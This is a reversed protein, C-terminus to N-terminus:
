VSEQKIKIDPKYLRGQCTNRSSLEKEIHNLVERKNKSWQPAILTNKPGDGTLRHIVLNPPLLELCDVVIQAYEDISLTKFAGNIYMQALPTGEIVHLLHLKIGQLKKNSLYKISELMQAKSEGPLGLIMHCVIDIEIENLDKVAKEFVSLPYGRCIKSATEEHTTQLGLEVWVYTERSLQNLLNIVEPSLCDPRTAIAIGVVGPVSIAEFFKERLENIPAYTNTYAQFYAIYKNIGHKESLEIIGKHSNYLQEKISLAPNGAFDGSGRPSCFICGDRGITGDRNPCSFGADISIKYVKEGFKGTLFQKLSYYREPM